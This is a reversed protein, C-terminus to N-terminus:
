KVWAGDAGVWCGDVYQNTLMYGDSGFYYCSGDIWVWQNKPYWGSADVYWWGTADSAWHGGSYAEDWAGDAGLWCGDRYESYDMYGDACFYYWKGDIKQWQSKPYWGETDEVWWGAADQKWSLTGDYTCKGDADYWKGDVWENSYEPNKKNNNNSNNDESDGTGQTGSGNDGNGKNKESEDEKANPDKVTVHYVYGTNQILSNGEEDYGAYDRTWIEYTAEGPKEAKLISGETVSIADGDLNEHDFIEKDYEAPINYEDGINLTINEESKLEQEKEVIDYECATIVKRGRKAYIKGTETKQDRVLTNSNFWNVGDLSYELLEETAIATGGEESDITVTDKYFSTTADKFVSELGVFCKLEHIGSINRGDVKNRIGILFNQIGEQKGTVWYTGAADQTFSINEEPSMAGEVSGTSSYGCFESPSYDEKEGIELIVSSRYWIDRDYESYSPKDASYPDSPNYSEGNKEKIIITQPGPFTGNSNLISYADYNINVDTSGSSDYYTYKMGKVNKIIAGAPSTINLGSSLTMKYAIINPGNLAVKSNATINGGSMNLEVVDITSTRTNINVNGGYINTPKKGDRIQFIGSGNPTNINVNGSYVNLNGDLINIGCLSNTDYINLNGYSNLEGFLGMGLFDTNINLTGYLDTVANRDVKYAYEYATHFIPYSNITLSANKDIYASHYIECSGNKIVVNAGGEIRLNWVFIDHEVELTGPGKIVVLGGYNIEQVTKNNGNLAITCSRGEWDIDESGEARVNTSCFTCVIMIVTLLIAILRKGRM